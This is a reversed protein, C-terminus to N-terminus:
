EFKNQRFTFWPMPYVKMGILWSLVFALSYSIATAYAAAIPGYTPLLTYSLIFHVLCSTFTIASVYVTKQSYFIFNVVGCYLGDALFGVVLWFIYKDVDKYNDDVILNIIIPSLLWLLVSFVTLALYYVYTYKVLRMKGEASNESLTKFIFPIFAKNFSSSIMTIISAIQYSISFVGTASSGIMANILIRDLSTNIWSATGHPLLPTSYKLSRVVVDKHWSFRLLGKRWLIIINVTGFILAAATIGIIRGEDDMSFGAVLIISVVYNLLSNGVQFVGYKIPQKELQWITLNVQSLVQLFAVGSALVIWKPELDIIQAFFGSFLILSTFSILFVAFSISVVSTTIARMSSAQFFSVSIFNTQEWGILLLLIANCAMFTAVVGYESPTLYETLIPLLLFPIAANLVSAGTYVISGRIVPNSVQKKLAKYFM